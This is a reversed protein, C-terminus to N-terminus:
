LLMNPYKVHYNKENTHLPFYKNLLSIVITM